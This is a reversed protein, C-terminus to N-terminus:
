WEKNDFITIGDREYQEFGDKDRFVIVQTVVTGNPGIACTISYPKGEAFSFADVQADMFPDPNFGYLINGNEKKLAECITGRFLFDFKGVRDWTNAIRYRSILTSTLQM